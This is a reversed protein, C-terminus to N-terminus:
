GAPSPAPEAPSVTGSLHPKGSRADHLGFAWGDPRRAASFAVAAPLPLPLKFAVDVTYQDPLRGELASLCRAKSWMGHAIRRPFGLLRAGIRSTHIPNRDGSVAAYARGVDAPVRWAATAAPVPEHRRPRDRRGLDDKDADKSLYASRGVWVVAGDVTATAVIDLVQGREHERLNEARVRLAFREGADLPRSLEITNAVHVIGVLPLPFEERTMLEIGLPFALIHPYTPPLRDGLRFGCVANYRALHDRDIAVGRVILQTEPLEASRAGRRTLAGAAARRILTGAAPM